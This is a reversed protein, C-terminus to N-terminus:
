VTYSKTASTYNKEPFLVNKLKMTGYVTHIGPRDDVYDISQSGGKPVSPFLKPGELKSTGEWITLTMDPAPIGMLVKGTVVVTRPVILTIIIDKTDSTVWTTGDLYRGYILVDIDQNPMTITKSVNKYSGAAIWVPGFVYNAGAITTFASLSGNANGTNYLTVNITVLSGAKAQSPHSMAGILASPKAPVDLTIPFTVTDSHVWNAGSWYWAYVTVDIDHAPMTFSAAFSATLWPEVWAYSPFSLSVGGPMYVGTPMLYGATTGTNYLTVDVRVLDGAKAKSPYSYYGITAYPTPL